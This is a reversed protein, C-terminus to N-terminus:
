MGDVYQRGKVCLDLGARNEEPAQAKAHLSSAEGYRALFALVCALGSLCFIVGFLAFVSAPAASYLKAHQLTRRLQCAGSAKVSRRAAVLFSLLCLVFVRLDCGEGGMEPFSLIGCAPFFPGDRGSVSQQGADKKM